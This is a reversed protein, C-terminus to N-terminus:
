ARRHQRLALMGLMLALALLAWKGLAPVSQVGAVPPTPTIAVPDLPINNDSVDTTPKQFSLYYTTSQGQQPAAAIGAQSADGGSFSSGDSAPIVASPFLYQTGISAAYAAISARGDSRSAFRPSAAAQVNAGSVSLSYIGDPATSWLFFQYRGLADTTMSAVGGM